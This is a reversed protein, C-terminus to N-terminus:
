SLGCGSGSAGPFYTGTIQAWKSDDVAPCGAGLKSLVDAGITPASAAVDAVSCDQGSMGPLYSGTMSALTPSDPVALLSCAAAATTSAAAGASPAAAATGAALSSVVIVLISIGRFVKSKIM